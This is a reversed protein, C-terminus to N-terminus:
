DDVDQGEKSLLGDASDPNDSVDASDGNSGSKDAMLGDLAGGDASGGPVDDVVEVEAAEIARNAGSKGGLLGMCGLRARDADSLDDLLRDYEGVDVREVQIRQTVQGKMMMYKDVQQCLSLSLKEPSLKKLQEPDDILQNMKERLAEITMDTLDLLDSGIREKIHEIDVTQVRRIGYILNRSYGTLKHITLVPMNQALYSCIVEYHDPNAAKLRDGSYIGQNWERERCSEEKLEAMTDGPFLTMQGGAPVEPVSKDHESM